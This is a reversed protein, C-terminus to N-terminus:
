SRRRVISGGAQERVPRDERPLFFYVRPKEREGM